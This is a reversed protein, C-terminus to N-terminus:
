KINLPFKQRMLKYGDNFLIEFGYKKYQEQLESTYAILTMGKCNPNEKVAMEELYKFFRPFLKLGKFQSLIQADFVHIDNEDFDVGQAKAHEKIDDFDTRDKIFTYCILGCVVGDVYKGNVTGSLLVKIYRPCFPGQGITTYNKDKQFSEKFLWFGRDSSKDPKSAKVLDILEKQSQIKQFELKINNNVLKQEQENIYRFIAKNVVRSM